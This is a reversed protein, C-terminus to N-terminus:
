SWTETQFRKEAIMQRYYEEVKEDNYGVTEKLARKLADTVQDPMQKSSGAIFFSGKLEWILKRILFEETLIKHQVYVKDEQDRSFAVSLHFNPHESKMQDWEQKFYFDKEKGRCGFFLAMETNKDKHGLLRESLYARFPAIGTGPGVM